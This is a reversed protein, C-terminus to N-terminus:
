VAHENREHKQLEKDLDYPVYKYRHIIESVKKTVELISLNKTDIKHVGEGQYIDLVSKQLDTLRQISYDNRGTARVRSALVEPDGILLIVVGSEIKWKRGPCIGDLLSKAKDPREEVKTFTLPDLPPRDVLALAPDLYRLTDNKICFQDIIWSDVEKSEDPTLQDWPKALVLPRVELWEDLVHLSRLLSATTSKGVGIAGTLYYNYNLVVDKQAALDKLKKDTVTEPNILDLLAKIKTPTLFLTILNYVKFNTESILNKQEESPQSAEDPSFQIYYHYNGPNIQSSRMLVNRLEDELACGILLCTNRAFHSLLFSSDHGRSGVYQTSYAAESFVFRDVPLEMLKSKFPVIGHPHYIVSDSRRFQPWPDTVIEFGKNSKDKERRKSALSRELFDDFNFNITLYSEQVLPLLSLFYPHENLSKDIDSEVTSYIYKSCLNLWDAKIINERELESLSLNQNNVNERFRHFLMETKYPLSKEKVHGELLAEGNVTTDLAIKHVKFDVSVGAGLILGFRRSKFQNRLHVIAKPNAELVEGRIDDLVSSKM